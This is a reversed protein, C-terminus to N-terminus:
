SDAQDALAPQSRNRVPVTRPQATNRREEQGGDVDQGSRRTVQDERGSARIMNWAHNTKRGQQQSSTSYFVRTTQRQSRRLPVPLMSINTVSNLQVQSPSLPTPVRLKRPANLMCVDTPSLTPTQLFAEDPRPSRFANSRQLPTQSTAFRRPRYNPVPTSTVNIPPEIQLSM